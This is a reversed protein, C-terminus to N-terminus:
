SQLKFWKMVLSWLIIMIQSSGISYFRDQMVDIYSEKGLFTKGGLSTFEKCLRSFNNAVPPNAPGGGVPVPAPAAEGASTATAELYRRFWTPIPIGEPLNPADAM